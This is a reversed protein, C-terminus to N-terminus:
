LGTGTTELAVAVSTLPVLKARSTFPVLKTVPACIVAAPFAREVVNTEEVSSCAFTVSEPPVVESLTSTELGFGPLALEDEIM